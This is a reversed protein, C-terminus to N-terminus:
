YGTYIHMNESDVFLGIYYDEDIDNGTCVPFDQPLESLLGVLEGVTLKKQNTNCEFAKDYLRGGDGWRPRGNEDFYEDKEEPPPCVEKLPEIKWEVEECVLVGDKYYFRIM